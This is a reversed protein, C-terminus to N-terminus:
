LKHGSAIVLELPLYSVLGTVPYLPLHDQIWLIVEGILFSLLFRLASFHSSHEFEKAEYLIVSM